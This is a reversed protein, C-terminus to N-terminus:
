NISALKQDPNDNIILITEVIANKDKNCAWCHGSCWRRSSDRAKKIRQMFFRFVTGESTLRENVTLLDDRIVTSSLDGCAWKSVFHLSVPLAGETSQSFSSTDNCRSHTRTLTHQATSCCQETSLCTAWTGRPAHLSISPLLLCLSSPHICSVTFPLMQLQTFLVFVSYCDAHVNLNNKRETRLKQRGAM